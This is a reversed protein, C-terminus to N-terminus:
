AVRVGRVHSTRVIGKQPHRFEMSLDPGIFHARLSSTGRLSGHFNVPVPTPCIDPNGSILIEGDGRNEIHYVTNATEVDLAAGVPLEDLDVGSDVSQELQSTSM